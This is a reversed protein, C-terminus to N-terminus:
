LIWAAYQISSTGVGGSTVTLKMRAYAHDADIKAVTDADLMIVRDGISASLVTISGVVTSTGFGAPGVELELLYTEDVAVGFDVVITANLVDVDETIAGTSTLPNEISVVGAGDDDAVLATAAATIAVALAAADAILSVGVTYDTGAILVVPTATGDDITFQDAAQQVGSFTITAVPNIDVNEIIVPVSYSRAGLRDKQDGRSKDLKDLAIVTSLTVGNATIAVDGPVRFATDADLIHNFVSKAM